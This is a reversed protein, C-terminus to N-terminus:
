PLHRKRSCITESTQWGTQLYLEGEQVRLYTRVRVPSTLENNKRCLLTESVSTIRQESPLDANM